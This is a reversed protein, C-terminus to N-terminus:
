GHTEDSMRQRRVASSLGDAFESLTLKADDLVLMQLRVSAAMLETASEHFVTSADRFLILDELTVGNIQASQESKNEEDM